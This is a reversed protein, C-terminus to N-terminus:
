KPAVGRSIYTLYPILKGCADTHLGVFPLIIDCLQGMKKMYSTVLDGKDTLSMLESELSDLTEQRSKMMEEKIDALLMHRGAMTCMEKVFKNGIHLILTEETDQEYLKVVIGNDPFDESTKTYVSVLFEKAEVLRDRNKIRM